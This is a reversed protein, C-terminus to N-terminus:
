KKAVAAYNQTAPPDHGRHHDPHLIAQQEAQSIREAGPARNGGYPWTRRMTCRWMVRDTGALARTHIVHMRLYFALALASLQSPAHTRATRDLSTEIPRRVCLLLQICFLTVAGGANLCEDFPKALDRALSVSALAITLLLYVMYVHLQLVKNTWRSWLLAVFVLHAIGFPM